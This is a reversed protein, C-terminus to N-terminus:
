VPARVDSERRPLIPGVREPLTPQAEPQRADKAALILAGFGALVAAFAALWGVVPIISVLGLVVLGVGLAAYRQAGVPVRARLILCGLAFAAVLYGVYLGILYVALGLLALPAGVVSAFLLVGVFPAVFFVLAGVGLSRWFRQLLQSIPAQTHPGFLAILVAGAVFAALVGVLWWWSALAFVGWPSRQAPAPQAEIQGVRASSPLVLERTAHRLTGTVVADGGLTLENASVDADQAVTGSLLVESGAVRLFGGIAGLLQADGSRVVADGAVASLKGLLLEGSALVVDGGVSGFIELEGAAARISEGVSGRLEVERGAAIVDGGVPGVVRVTGGAVILDGTVTGDVVIENGAIYLDDDITEGATIHVRQGSRVELAGAPLALLLVLVGAALARM